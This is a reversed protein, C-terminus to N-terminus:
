KKALEAAYKKWDKEMRNAKELVNAEQTKLFKGMESYYYPMFAGLLRVALLGANAANNIAVTAV